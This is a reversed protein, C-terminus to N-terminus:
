RNTTRNKDNGSRRCQCVNRALRRKEPHLAFKNKLCDPHEHNLPCEACRLGQEGDRTLKQLADGDKPICGYLHNENCFVCQRLLRIQKKMINGKGHLHPLYTHDIVYSRARSDVHSFVTGEWILRVVPGNKQIATPHSSFRRSHYTVFPTSTYVM